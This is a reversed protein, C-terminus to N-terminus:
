TRSIFHTLFSPSMALCASNSEMKTGTSTPSSSWPIAVSDPGTQPPMMTGTDASIASGVPSENNLLNASLCAFFLTETAQTLDDATFRHRLGEAVLCDSAFLRVFELGVIPREDVLLEDTNNSHPMAVICALGPHQSRVLTHMRPCSPRPCPQGTNLWHPERQAESNRRM